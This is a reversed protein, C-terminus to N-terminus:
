RPRCGLAPSPDFQASLGVHRRATGSRPAAAPAAANRRRQLEQSSTRENIHEKLTRASATRPKQKPPPWCSRAPGRRSRRRRRPDAGRSRPSPATPSNPRGSEAGNSNRPPRSPRRAGRRSREPGAAAVDKWLPTARRRAIEGVCSRRWLRWRPGRGGSSDWGNGGDCGSRGRAAVARRRWGSVWRRGSPPGTSGPRPRVNPGDGMSDTVGKQLKRDGAPPSRGEELLEELIIAVTRCYLLMLIDIRRHLTFYYRFLM